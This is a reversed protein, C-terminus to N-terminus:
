LAKAPTSIKPPPQDPLKLGLQDLLLATDTDPETRRCLLLERGDTTPILVDLMQQQQLKEFVTRLM